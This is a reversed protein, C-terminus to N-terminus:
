SASGTIGSAESAPTSLLTGRGLRYYFTSRPLGSAEIQRRRAGRSPPGEPAWAEGWGMRIAEVVHDPGPVGSGALWCLRRLVNRLERVNGPWPHRSLIRMSEACPWGTPLPGAWLRGILAELDASRDRLAPLRIVLCGLRELLDARLHGSAVARSPDRHTAAVLRPRAAIERTGGVRRIRGTEVVRLLKAQTGESAEALEDLFLTGGDAVEFAGARDRSAGTYAGRTCGFLESEVLDRPVAALNIAFFPGEARSGHGHLARAVLEKGTGTEGLVLVPDTFQAGLVAHHLVRLMADSSAVLDPGLAAVVRGEPRPEADLCTTPLGVLHTACGAAVHGADGGRRSDARFAVGSATAWAHVDTAWPLPVPAEGVRVSRVRGSAVTVLLRLRNM